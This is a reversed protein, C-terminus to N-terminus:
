QVTSGNMEDWKEELMQVIELSSPRDEPNYEWCKMMVERLAVSAPHNFHEMRMRQQQQQRKTLNENADSEGENYVGSESDHKVRKKKKVPLEEPLKSTEGNVIWQVARDYKQIYYWPNMGGSLLYYFVGGLSYVDITDTQNACNEYEEPARYVSGRHQIGCIRFPCTTGTTVSRTLFRGRNFDQIQVIPVKTNALVARTTADMKEEMTQVDNGYISKRGDSSRFPRDFLIFQNPKIDAVANTARGNHYLHAQYLGRAAQMALVYIEIPEMMSPLLQQHQQQASQEEQDKLIPHRSEVYVDLTGATSFPSISSFACYQYVPCVNNMKFLMENKLSNTTTSTTIIPLPGGGVRESILVDRRNKERLYATWGRDLKNTKLIVREQQLPQNNIYYYNDNNIIYNQTVTWVDRFGGHNLYEIFSFPNIRDIIHRRRKRISTSLEMEEVEEVEEEKEERSYYKQQTDFHFALAHIDNCTSPAIPQAQYSPDSLRCEETEMSYVLPNNMAENNNNSNNNNNQKTQWSPQTISNDLSSSSSTPSTIIIPQHDILKPTTTVNMSNHSTTFSNDNSVGNICHCSLTIMSQINQDDDDLCAVRPFYHRYHRHHHHHHHHHHNTPFIVPVVDNETSSSSISSAGNSGNNRSKTIRNNSRRSGGGNDRTSPNMRENENSDHHSGRRRRRRRTTAASIRDSGDDLLLSSLTWYEYAVWGVFCCCGVALAVRRRPSTTLSTTTRIPTTLSLEDDDHQFQSVSTGGSKKRRM